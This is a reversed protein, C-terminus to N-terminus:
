HTSSRVPQRELLPRVLSELETVEFPKALVGDAGAKEAAALYARTSVSEPRYGGLEFNGGGSIAIVRVDPFEGRLLGILAVGDMGPMIVDVIVLDYRRLRLEALAAAADNAADVTVSDSGLVRKLAERVFPEDDIVLLRKM